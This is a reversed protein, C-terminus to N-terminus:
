IHSEFLLATMGFKGPLLHDLLRVVPFMGRAAYFCWSPVKAGEHRQYLGNIHNIAGFLLRAWRLSYFKENVLQYGLYHVSQKYSEPTRLTYDATPQTPPTRTDEILLLYRPNAQSISRLVSTYLAPDTIHQLVTVTFLLDIHIGEPAPLNDANTQIYQVNPIDSLNKRALALLEASCDFALLKDPAYRSFFRLNLGAGSGLEAICRKGPIMVSFQELLKVAVRRVYQDYPSHYGVLDKEPASSQGIAQAVTDWYQVQKQAATNM